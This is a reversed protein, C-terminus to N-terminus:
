YCCGLLHREHMVVVRPHLSRRVWIGEQTQFCVARKFPCGISHWPTVSASAQWYFQVKRKGPAFERPNTGESQNRKQISNHNRHTGFMRLNVAVGSFFSPKVHIFSKKCSPLSEKLLNCPVLLSTIVVCYSFASHLSHYLVWRM